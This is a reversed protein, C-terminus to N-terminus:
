YETFIASYKQRHQEVHMIITVSNHQLPTKVLAYMSMSSSCMKFEVTMVFCFLQCFFAPHLYVGSHQMLLFTSLNLLFQSTDRSVTQIRTVVPQPLPLPPNRHM